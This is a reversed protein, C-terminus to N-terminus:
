IRIFTYAAEVMPNQTRGFIVRRKNLVCLRAMDIDNRTYIVTVVDIHM